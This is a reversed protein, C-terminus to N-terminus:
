IHGATSAPLRVVFRSGQGPHSELELRGGHATILERAISLGLGMGQPFRKDRQSRYFPEFIREQELAAIGPGTDSVVIVVEENQPRAAVSITGEATYKVANSLLNGLVQALRDPDAEIIPLTASVDLQWHLGKAHAAERWPSVMRPLWERLDIPQSHLEWTSLLQGHLQALNDLLPQLRKTQEDMGTLLEHRLAPEAEAGSLLAQIASQMAGLPRGIEHVLNALLNRRSEELVRLRDILTNFARLLLRIETPGQEPLTQWRRGSAIGYIAGTVRRLSRELGLALVLGIVGGVLLEVATVGLILYRLRMFQDSMDSLQRSLRVVGVIEQNPNIVPALVELSEAQLNLSYSVQVPSNGALASALNSLDLPQGPQDGNTASTSSALLTGEPDLLAIQLQRQITVTALFRQAAAPNDWITPQDGAVRATQAAQVMLENSITSLLIQTEVLYLLVLGVLPALLLLPLIHSLILRSRLTRM